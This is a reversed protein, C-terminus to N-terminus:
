THIEGEALPVGEGVIESMSEKLNAGVVTGFLVVLRMKNCLDTSGFYLRYGLM